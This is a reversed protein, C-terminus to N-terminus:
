CDDQLEGIFYNQFRQENKKRTYAVYITYPWLLIFKFYQKLGGYPVGHDDLRIHVFCQGVHFYIGFVIIASLIYAIM